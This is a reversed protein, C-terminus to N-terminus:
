DERAARPAGFMLVEVERLERLQAALRIVEALTVSTRGRLALRVLTDATM